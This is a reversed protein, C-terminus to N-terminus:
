RLPRRLTALLRDVADQDPQVPTARRRVVLWTLASAAASGGLGLILFAAKTDIEDILWGFNMGFFGTLFTLPLFITAVVTLWYMTENMRLDMLKAMSDAAADIGDILRNLQEYVREFYRENDTVLGEVQGIEEGIREFIGRQPGLQRRMTTLRLNIARLTGMRVRASAGDTALVQIGELALETDSLADFATAAMADLVAYVVYQESRGEASYEPLLSPLSVPERHVTLLYDGHVLVNVEIARLRPTGEDDQPDSELYCHFPFVVQTSTASFRRSPREGREFDLLPRLAVQPIDLAASLGADAGEGVSVDIWFFHGQARLEAIRKRQEEGLGELIENV